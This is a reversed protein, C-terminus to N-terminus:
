KGWKYWVLVAIIIIVAAWAWGSSAGAPLANLKGALSQVEQDTLAAVRDQAAKPELGMSQLQSAVDARSVYNMVSARDAQVTATTALQNTTIIGAQAIQFSLMTLSMILTRCIIKITAIKM